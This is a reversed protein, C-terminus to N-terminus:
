VKYWFSHYQSFMWIRSCEMEMITMKLSEWHYEKPCTHMLFDKEGELHALITMLKYDTKIIQSCTDKRQLLLLVTIDLCKSQFNLEANKAAKRENM